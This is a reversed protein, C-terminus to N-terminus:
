ALLRTSTRLPGKCLDERRDDHRSPRNNAAAFRRSIAPRWAGEGRNLAAARMSHQQWWDGAGDGCTLAAGLRLARRLLDGGGAHLGQSKSHPAYLM